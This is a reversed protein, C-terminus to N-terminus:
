FFDACGKVSFEFGTGLFHWDVEIDDNDGVTQPRLKRNERELMNWLFNLTGDLEESVEVHAKVLAATEIEQVGLSRDLHFEVHGLEAFGVFERNRCETKWNEEEELGVVDFQSRGLDSFM